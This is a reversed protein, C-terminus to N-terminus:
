RGLIEPCDLDYTLPIPHKKLFASAKKLRRELEASDAPACLEETVDECGELQSTLRHPLERALATM